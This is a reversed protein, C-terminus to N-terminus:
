RNVTESINLPSHSVITSIVKFSSQAFTLVMIKTGISLRYMKSTDETAIDRIQTYTYDVALLAIEATCLYKATRTVFRALPM